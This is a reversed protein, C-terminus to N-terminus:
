YTEALLNSISETISEVKGESNTEKLTSNYVKCMTQFKTVLEPISLLNKRLNQKAVENNLISEM